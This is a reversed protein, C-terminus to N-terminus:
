SLGDGLQGYLERVATVSPKAKGAHDFLGKQNVGRVIKIGPVKKSISGGAFTPAVGFDRLNWILMGALQESRRYAGIHQRLLRTQFAFGGPRSSPNHTNAEAGFESIVTVKSRFTTLFDDTTTRIKAAVTARPALPIEYWGVYNTVAIADLHRYVPGLQGERPPHTGWVDVATMRGPDRRHLWDGMESIYQVQGDQRGNGAIENALNWAIISPHPQSQAFTERVRERARRAQAPTKSTWSGPADIPGLGLWVLIGAADLRELLAPNLPHQSRTSNANIRQLSTVIGDMDAPALADGRGKVDEHISAGHLKLPRGNLQMRSGKWTLERLGVRMTYASEGPVALDLDYLQPSGPQWLAPDPVDARGEVLITQGAPVLLKPFQVPISAEGRRLVGVVPLERDEASRNTVHVGVEVRAAGADTLTTHIEPDSVESDGVPRITVERNIGGFNFWTRHWGTRKQEYPDRYDARVVLTAPRDAELRVKREFPLYVGTHRAIEKGDLFVTAHHHVSEFRIAYEGSKAVRIRTRYWAVSGRYSRIGPPGTIRSANPSYPLQVVRGAFSGDQWGKGTGKAGRDGRVVWPGPMASRGTAGTHAAPEAFTTDVPAPTLQASAVPVSALLALVASLM